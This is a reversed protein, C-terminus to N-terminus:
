KLILSVAIISSLLSSGGYSFFPLPLGTIPFIGLNMGMNIITEVWLFSILGLRILFVFDDNTSFLQRRLQDFLFVYLGVVLAVGLFGFSEGLVAFIFDTHREPLFALRTQSGLALGRGWIGGSGITVKTQIINYGQGLPDKEPHLFFEIRAQQYDSLLFRWSFLLFVFGILGGVLFLRKKRSFFFSMVGGTFALIMGSGLDPQIFILFLPFSLFIALVIIEKASGIGQPFFRVLFSALLFVFLPKVLESPQLSFQSFFLWRNAGRINKGLVLPLLLLFIMMLYLFFLNRNVPEIKFHLKIIGWFFGLCIFWFFLQRWFYRKEIGWLLLLSIAGLAILNLFVLWHRREM